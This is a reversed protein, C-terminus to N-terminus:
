DGRHVTSRLRGLSRRAWKRVHEGALWAKHRLRAAAHRAVIRTEITMQPQAGWSTKYSEDGRLFDFWRYGEGIARQVSGIMGLWGPDDQRAEPDLGTQYYFITEGGILAYEAAIPRNDLETWLLRLMNLSFFRRSVEEHFRLFASSVFCGPQGLSHRRKQHLEVMRRFGRDLEADSAPARTVVRGTDFYKRTLQRIRARRSSSLQKLFTEWDAALGARWCSMAPRVHTLHNRRAFEETLSHVAPDGAESAPIHLLDWHEAGTTDLWEAVATAVEIERGPLTLLTQYETCVEGSGLSRLVRGEKGSRAIYWPAIGVPRGAEEVILVALRWGTRSYHRWWPELWEFRRFPIAGAM